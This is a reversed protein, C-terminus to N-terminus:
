CRKNGLQCSAPYRLAWLRALFGTSLFIGNYVFQASLLNTLDEVSLVQILNFQSYRGIPFVVFLLSLIYQGM